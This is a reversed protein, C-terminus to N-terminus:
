LLAAPLTCDSMRLYPDQAIPVGHVMDPPSGLLM